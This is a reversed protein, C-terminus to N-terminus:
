RHPVPPSATEGERCRHRRARNILAVRKEVELIDRYIQKAERLIQADPDREFRKFILVLRTMAAGDDASLEAQATLYDIVQLMEDTSFTRPLTMEPMQREM